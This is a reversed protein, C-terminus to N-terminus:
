QAEGGIYIFQDLDGIGNTGGEPIQVNEEPALSKAPNPQVLQLM